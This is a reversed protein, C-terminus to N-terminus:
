AGLTWQLPVAQRRPGLPQRYNLSNYRLNVKCWRHALPQAAIHQNPRTRTPECYSNPGAEDAM